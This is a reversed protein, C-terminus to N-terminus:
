LINANVAKSIFRNCIRVIDVLKKQLYFVNRPDVRSAIAETKREYEDLNYATFLDVKECM